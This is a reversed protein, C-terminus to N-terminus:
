DYEGDLIHIIAIRAEQALENREDEVLEYVKQAIEDDTLNTNRLGDLYSHSIDISINVTITKVNDM